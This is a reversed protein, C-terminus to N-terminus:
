FSYTTTFRIERPAVLDYRSYAVGRGGPVLYGNPAAASTSLRTPIIDTNDFVNSINVQFRVRGPLRAFKRSYGLMLDTGTIAKGTIESGNANTGIVNASRWRWGGGVTFSKLWGEKFDYATFLSIKHPRVGWRKEQQEKDDNLDSVMTFIEEAVTMGNSTTLTSLNAAPSIAGLEIWKAVTQGPEFASANVVFQGAANQTVGQQLPTGSGKKLGYWAVMENALNTRGSDTYSYNAVLRWNSTLNATIRAEYGESEFDSSVASAPPTYQANIPAWESASFRRGSGVLVSEFADMVRSNRAAAGGFGPTDIRGTESSKFYVFRSSIRGNLLDLGIGYDEGVGRSPPPLEGNPFVTRVFSPLGINTSRNAILSLWDLVHYVM